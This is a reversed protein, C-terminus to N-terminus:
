QSMGHSAKNVTARSFLVGTNGLSVKKREVQLFTGRSCISSFISGLEPFTLSCKAEDMKLNREKIREETLFHDEGNRRHM